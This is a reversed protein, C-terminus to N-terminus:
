RGGILLLRMLQCNELKIWMQLIDNLIVNWWHPTTHYSCATRPNIGTGLINRVQRDHKWWHLIAQCLCARRPHKLWKLTWKWWHPTTRCTRSKNETSFTEKWKLTVHWWHPTAAHIPLKRIQNETPLHWETENWWHPTARCSCPNLRPRLNNRVSSPQREGNLLHKANILLNKPKNMTLSHTLWKLTEKKRSSNPPM